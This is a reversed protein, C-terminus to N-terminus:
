RREMRKERRAERYKKRVDKPVWLNREEKLFFIM